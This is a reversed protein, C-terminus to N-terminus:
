KTRKALSFDLSKPHSRSAGFRFFTLAGLIALLHTVYEEWSISQANNKSNLQALMASAYVPNTRFVRRLHRIRSDVMTELAAAFQDKVQSKNFDLLMFESVPISRVLDEILINGNKLRSFAEPDNSYPPNGIIVSVEHSQTGTEVLSMVYKDIVNLDIDLGYADVLNKLAFKILGSMRVSSFPVGYKLFIAPLSLSIKLVNDILREDPESLGDRAIGRLMWIPDVGFKEYLANLISAPVEREGKVYLQCARRSIGLVESYANQTLGERLRISNFREGM